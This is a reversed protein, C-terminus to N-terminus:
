SNTTTFVINEIADEINEFEFTFGNKLLNKPIVCQGDTLVKAGESFILNFVFIPIPFITPRHLSKGLAKTLGHNTTPIPATMNFIGSLSENDIVFKYAKLLDAIHIFSFSQTGDGITGGLGLKFPTLMQSLAGGDKGLVIGFRFIVTRIDFNSAKFAENEWEKCLNALFNDALNQTSEDYIADNKYIGVASTSFFLKPKVVCESMAQVLSKTTDIRSSYLLKKYSESWRHIINAGALNIVVECGNVIEALKQVDNLDTRKISIVEFGQTKFMSTINQGVFGSAGTIAIKKMKMEKKFFMKLVLQIKDVNARKSSYLKFFNKNKLLITM